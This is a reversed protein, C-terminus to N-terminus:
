LSFYDLFMNLTFCGLLHLFDVNLFTPSFSANGGSLFCAFWFMATYCFPFLRKSPGSSVKQRLFHITERWNILSLGIVIILKLQSPIYIQSLVELPIVFLYSGVVAFYMCKMQEKNKLCHIGLVLTNTSSLLGGILGLKCQCIRKM